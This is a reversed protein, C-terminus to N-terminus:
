VRPSAPQPAEAGPATRGAQARLVVAASVLCLGGVIVTPLTDDTAQALGGSGASGIIQGGAWAINMLGAGFAQDLGVLDSLDSLLAMAPTWAAGTGVATVGIVLVLTEATSALGFCALAVGTVLFSGALPVLRGHRDSVGGIWASVLSELVAAVIFVGGIVGAGAGQPHLALPGLVTLTGSVIAPLTMLWIGGRGLPRRLLDLTATIAPVDADDDGVPDSITVQLRWTVVVLGLALSALAIFLAARGTAAAIAGVAPGAISGGIAASVAQGIVVGRRSVPAVAVLWALGGDWSCAGGVGELFRAGDLGAASRLLAFTVTSLFLLVLGVCVAFRPGMRVVLIGGPLSALLMGAPYAATLVGAGFKSLHLSDSLGPLLPAVVAYFTTDLLVAAGVLLTLRGLAVADGTM